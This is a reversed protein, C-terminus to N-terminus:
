EEGMVKPYQVTVLTMERIRMAAIEFTHSFGHTRIGGPAKFFREEANQRLLEEISKDFWVTWRPFAWVSLDRNGSAKLYAEKVSWLLTFAAEISRGDQQARGAVWQQEERSFSQKYFEQRRTEIRELDLGIHRQSICSATYVGCHSSSASLVECVNGARFIKASTRNMSPGSLLELAGWESDEVAEIERAGMKQFESPEPQSLLVKALMRSAVTREFRAPHRYCTVEQQERDTLLREWQRLPLERRDAFAVACIAPM